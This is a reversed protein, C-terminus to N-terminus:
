KMMSQINLLFDQYYERLNIYILWEINVLGNMSIALYFIIFNMLISLQFIMLLRNQDFNWLYYRQVPVKEKLDDLIDKDHIDYLNKLINTGKYCYIDDM